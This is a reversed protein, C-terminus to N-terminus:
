ETLEVLGRSLYRDYAAQKLAIAEEIGMRKLEEFYAPLKSIDEKGAILKAVMEERYTDIPTMIDNFKKSEEATMYIMPLKYDLTQTGWRDFALKQEDYKYVQKIYSPAQAFPGMYTGRTYNDLAQGYTMGGNTAPDLLEKIYQPERNENYTFSVGEIGFNYLLNGADSYGFDMFRAALEKHKSDASIAAMDLVPFDKQGFMAPEGKKQTPVKIPVFRFSPDSAAQKYRAVSSVGDYYAGVKGTAIAADIRSSTLDAFEKDLIGDAYWQHMQKIWEGFGSEYPGFKVVNDKDHYFDGSIGFCSMFPSFTRLYANSYRMMLPIEVGMEQFRYLVNEWEELTDPEELGAQQLLDERIIYTMYTSLVDDPRIFPYQYLNGDDTTLMKQWDPHETLVKKLNPSVKSIYSNLPTIVGERIAAEPGGVYSSWGWEMIDAADGSAIMINFAENEQGSVPHEFSLKIGTQKELEEKLVTENFSNFRSAVNPDMKMWYRLTVDTEQPYVDSTTVEGLALEAINTETNGACGALCSTLMAAAILAGWEKRM